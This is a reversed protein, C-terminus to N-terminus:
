IRSGSPLKRLITGQGRPFVDRITRRWVECEEETGALIQIEGEGAPLNGSFADGLDRLLPRLGLRPDAAPMELAVSAVKLDGAAAAARHLYAACDQVTVPGRPGIGLLLLRAAHLRGQVAVLTTEGEEGLIRGALILRSLFGCLHWDARGALGRPPREGSRVPAVLLEAEVRTVDHWLASIKV